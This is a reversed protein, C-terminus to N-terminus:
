LSCSDICNQRAQMRVEYEPRNFVMCYITFVWWTIKEWTNHEESERLSAAFETYGGVLDGDKSVVPVTPWSERIKHKLESNESIEIYRFDLGEKEALDQAMVCFPCGKRGYIIWM